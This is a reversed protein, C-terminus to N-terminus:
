LLGTYIAWLKSIAIKESNTIVYIQGFAEFLIKKQIAAISSLANCCTSVTVQQNGAWIAGAMGQQKAKCHKRSLMKNRLRGQGFASDFTLSFANKAYGPKPLTPSPDHFNAPEREV